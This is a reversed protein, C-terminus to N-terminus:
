GTTFRVRMPRAGQWNQPERVWQSLLWKEGGTTPSGSHLTLRDPEGKEDVNRFMLADGKGGRLGFGLHPFVTQGGEYDENLYVLFTYHRQGPVKVGPKPPVIFDYHAKFEQGPTYHLVSVDEHDLFSCGLAQSIGHATLMFILDTDPFSFRVDSNTRAPDAINTGANHDFVMARQLGPRARDCIWDCMAPTIFGEFVALHPAERLLKKPTPRLWEELKVADHLRYWVEDGLVERRLIAAEVRDDGAMFALTRRALVHGAKAARGIYALVYEWAEIGKAESALIIAVCHSAQGHGAHAAETLVAMAPELHGQDLLARGKAYLADPDSM